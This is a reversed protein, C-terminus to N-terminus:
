ELFIKRTIFNFIMVILTSIVKGIIYYIKLMSTCLYLIVNNLLLGMISFVIFIIFNLKKDKNNNVDFVWIISAIYNYIVSISFSITNSILTNLNFLEKLLILIIFDILTAVVGVIVFKFIQFLLKKTKLSFKIPIINLCNNFALEMRNKKM